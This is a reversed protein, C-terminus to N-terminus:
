GEFFETNGGCQSITCQRGDPQNLHIILHGVVMTTGSRFAHLICFFKYLEQVFFYISTCTYKLSQQYMCM